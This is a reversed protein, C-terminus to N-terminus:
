RYDGHGLHRHIPIDINAPVTSDCARTTRCTWCAKGLVLAGCTAQMARPLLALSSGLPWAAALGQAALELAVEDLAATPQGRGLTIETTLRAARALSAGCRTGSRRRCAALPSVACTRDAQGRM